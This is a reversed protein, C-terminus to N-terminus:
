FGVRLNLMYSGNTTRRYINNFLYQDLEKNQLNISRAAPPTSLSAFFSRCTGINEWYPGFM